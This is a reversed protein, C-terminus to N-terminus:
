GRILQYRYDTLQEAAMTIDSSDISFEFSYKGLSNEYRKDYYDVLLIRVLESLDGKKLLDCLHDVLGSGLHPKLKHLIDVVAAYTAEDDVPYDAVIRAVREALPATVLVLRGRKMAVALSEPLYIDGMKRSEGEIFYPEGKLEGILKHFSADFGKQTRPRRNLAGFLSSQHQALDELDIAHDLEHLLRTKGTGTLGHLVILGPSFANLKEQVVRRYEKYGGSLQWATFGYQVLLNVVSRSRMGGRACFVALESGQFPRFMEVFDALKAEVVELGREVAKGQGGHRYITGVLAREDDDFLAINVGDPVSGEAFEKPSRVDIIPCGRAIGEEFTLTRGTQHLITTREYGIDAGSM